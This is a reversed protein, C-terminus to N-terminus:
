ATYKQPVKGRTEGPRQSRGGQGTIDPSEEFAFRRPQKAQGEVTARRAAARWPLRPEM